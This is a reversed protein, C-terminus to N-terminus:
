APSFGPSPRMHETEPTAGGTYPVGDPGPATDKARRLAARIASADPTTWTTTDAPHIYTRAMALSLRENITRPQFQDAWYGQPRARIDSPDVHTMTTADDDDDDVPLM